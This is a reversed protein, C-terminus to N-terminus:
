QHIITCLIITTYNYITPYLLNSSALDVSGSLGYRGGTAQHFLPQVHQRVSTTNAINNQLNMHQQQPEAGAALRKKRDKESQRMLVAPSNRKKNYKRQHARRRQLREEDTVNLRKGM